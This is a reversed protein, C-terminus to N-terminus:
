REKEYKKLLETFLMPVLKMKEPTEVYAIRMQTKGPNEEGKKVNYFGAMPAVLLTYNKEEFEIKGKQACYMVFKHADFNKAVNRVDIVAYITADTSSVIIGPMKKRLEGAVEVMMKKYYERQKAYWKKLEEHSEHALAGLIYQGIANPCLNATYEAVSKEHFEKNDTVLAGIRLGCANWVKSTTEISIRRGEIGEVIKDDIGWISSTKSGTYQMERYAEDSIIWMDYKTCLKALEIMEEQKFFQGTPNDYPIVVMAGPNNEKIVKEIEELNPLSFKGDEKLKRKVAVVKRGVRNAFLMYNTYAADILLLPKEGSGAAGCCGVIALEMAMSGGDLIQSYLKGTSFGSSAIINLFADNAEKEGVTATYRM